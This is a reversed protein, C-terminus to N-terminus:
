NPEVLHFVGGAKALRIADSVAAVVPAPTAAPLIVIVLPKGTRMLRLGRNFCGRIAATSTGLYLADRPLELMRAAGVIGAAALVADAIALLAPPTVADDITRLRAILEDDGEAAQRRVGRDRAHADLWVGRANGIETMRLWQSATADVLLMAAAYAHLDERARETSRFYGPVAGAGHALLSEYRTPGPLTWSPM